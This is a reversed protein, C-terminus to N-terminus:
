AKETTTLQEIRGDRYVRTRKGRRSPIREHDNAGPRGQYPELEKAQYHGPPPTYPAPTM